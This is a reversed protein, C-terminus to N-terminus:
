AGVRGHDVFSRGAAAVAFRADAEACLQRRAEAEADADSDEPPTDPPLWLIDYSRRDKKNGGLCYTYNVVGSAQHQTLGCMEAIAKQTIPRVHRNSWLARAKAIVGAHKIPDLRTIKKM